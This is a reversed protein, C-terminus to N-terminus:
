LLVQVRRRLEYMKQSSLFYQVHFAAVNSGFCEKKKYSGTVNQRAETNKNTKDIQAELTRIGTM